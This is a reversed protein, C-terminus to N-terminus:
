TVTGQRRCVDRVKDESNFYDWMTLVSLITISSLRTQIVRLSMSSSSSTDPYDYIYRVRDTCGSAPHTPFRVPRVPASRLRATAAASSVRHECAHHERAGLHGSGVVQRTPLWRRPLTPDAHPESITTDARRPRCGHRRRRIPLLITSLNNPKLLVM